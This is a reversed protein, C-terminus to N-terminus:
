RLAEAVFSPDYVTQLAPVATLAGFQVQAQAVNRLGSPSLQMKPDWAKWRVWDADYSKEAVTRDVHTWEILDAVAQERHTYGWEIAKRMARLVKVVTPRNAAAWKTNVAITTFSWDPLVDYASELSRMGKSEALIDFPQSLMAGDVHGSSVAAYRAGSNGGVIMTVDGIKMGHKQLMAALALATVDQKTGVVISKGKIDGFTKISPGVILAYPNVRFQPAVIKIPLGRAIAANYSDTGNDGLQVANSALQNVVGPPSGASVITVKLGEQRFFGEKEALYLPWESASPALLAYNVEILNQARGAPPIAALGLVALSVLLRRIM